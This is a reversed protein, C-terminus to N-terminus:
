IATACYLETELMMGGIGSSRSWGLCPSAMTKSALVMWPLPFVEPNTRALVSHILQAESVVVTWPLPFAEPNTGALVSHLPDALGPATLSPNDTM